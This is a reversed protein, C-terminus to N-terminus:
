DDREDLQEDTFEGRRRMDSEEEELQEETVILEPSLAASEEESLEIAGLEPLDLRKRLLMNEARIQDFVALLATNENSLDNCLAALQIESQELKAIESVKLDMRQNMMAIVAGQSPQRSPLQTEPARGDTVKNRRKIKRAANSM